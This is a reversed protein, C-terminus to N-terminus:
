ALAKRESTVEMKRIFANKIYFFIMRMGYGYLGVPTEEEHLLDDAWNFEAM